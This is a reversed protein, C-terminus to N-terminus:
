RQSGTGYAIKTIKSYCFKGFTLSTRPDLAAWLFAMRHCRREQRQEGGARYWSAAIRCHQAMARPGKHRLIAVLHKRVVQEYGRASRLLNKSITDSGSCDYTFTPNPEFAFPYVKALRIMTDWEQFAGIQEDLYGIRRLAEKSVLLGQYLPGEAELLQRYVWGSLPRVRYPKMVGDVQIINCESHVVSVKAKRAVDLRAELSHPLFQDDSDLFGIWDGRAARIGTNRAAQAGRNSDHRLYRIRRDERALDSMVQATSDKSGDDVVIIEFEPYTQKLVSAVATGILRARNFVPIIVSICDM